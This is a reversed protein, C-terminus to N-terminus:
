AEGGALHGSLLGLALKAAQRQETRWMSEPIANKKNKALWRRYNNKERILGAMEFLNNGFTRAKERAALHKRM